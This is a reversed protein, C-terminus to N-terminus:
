AAGNLELYLEDVASEINEEEGPHHQGVGFSSYEGFSRPAKHDIRWGAPLHRPRVADVFAQRFRACLHGLAEDGGQAILKDVVKQGHWSHGLGDRVDIGTSAGMNGDGHAGNPLGTSDITSTTTDLENLLVEPVNAGQGVWKRISRRRSARSMGGLLGAWLEIESFPADPPLHQLSPEVARVYTSVQQQLEERRWDPLTARAKQLALAAKRVNFPHQLHPATCTTSTITSSSQSTNANINTSSDETTSQNEGGKEEGNEVPNQMLHPFLPVGTEESIQRKLQEMAKQAIEHCSVCLLVVDHSRHSKFKEPLARRYCSPVVRYRLYHKGAGCGVCHNSRAASYFEHAGAQQDDDRHSFTLRVTLPEAGPEVEEALGKKLYWLLRKRDTYCLLDGNASLMKCNEYVRKKVGFREGLREKLFEPDERKRRTMEELPSSPKLAAQVEPHSWPRAGAAAAILEKVLHSAAESARDPFQCCEEYGGSKAYEELLIQLDAATTLTSAHQAISLLVDDPMICKVGEDLRRGEQDRWVCLAHVKTSLILLGKIESDSFPVIPGRSQRLDSIYTKMLAAAAGSAAVRPLPPTFETLSLSQSRRVARGLHSEEDLIVPKNYDRGLSAAHADELPPRPARGDAAILEKNLCDAICLLWHVDTRAYEVQADSLPRQRWDATQLSKDATVECFKQLLHKLSRQRGTYGLVQCAKETDFVNILRMGFDRLLWLVDSGGGHVVKLIRPSTLLPGLLFPIASRLAIADIVYDQDGTSLQILCTQGLYTHTSHHEIDLALRTAGSLRTTASELEEVTAIFTYPTSELPLPFHPTLHLAPPCGMLQQIIEIHPNGAPLSSKGNLEQDADRRIRHKRWVWAFIALHGGLLAINM